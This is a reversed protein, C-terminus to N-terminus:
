PKAKGKQSFRIVTRAKRPANLMMLGNGKEDADSFWSRRSEPVPLVLGLQVMEGRCLEDAAPLSFRVSVESQKISYFAFSSLLDDRFAYNCDRVKATVDRLAELLKSLSEPRSDAGLAKSVMPDALLATFVTQEPFISTLKASSRRKSYDDLNIARIRKTSTSHAGGCDCDMTEEFSLYPGVASLLRYTFQAQMPQGNSDQVWRSWTAKAEAAAAFVPVKNGAATVKLNGSSWEISYKGSKGQWITKSSAAPQACLRGAILCCLLLSVLCTRPRIM